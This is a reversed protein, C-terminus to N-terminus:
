GEERRLCGPPLVGVTHRRRLAERGVGPRQVRRQKGTGTIVFDLEIQEAIVLAVHREIGLELLVDARPTGRQEGYPALVIRKEEGDARLREFAVIRVGFDMQKVGAM